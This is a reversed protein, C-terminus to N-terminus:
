EGDTADRCRKSCYLREGPGPLADSRPLFTGCRRCPVMSQTEPRAGREPDPRPRRSPLSRRWRRWRYIGYIILGLLALRLLM